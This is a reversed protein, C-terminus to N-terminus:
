VTLLQETGSVADHIEAPPATSLPVYIHYRAPMAAVYRAAFDCDALPGPLDSFLTSSASGEDRALELEFLYPANLPEIGNTRTGYRSPRRPRHGERFSRM